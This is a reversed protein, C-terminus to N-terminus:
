RLQALFDDKPIDRLPGQVVDGKVVVHMTPYLGAGDVNKAPEGVEGSGLFVILETDREFVDNWEYVHATDGVRGGVFSFTLSEGVDDGKFVESVAMRVPTRIHADINKVAEKSDAEPAVNDSSSWKSPMVEAITGQVVIDSRHLENSYDNPQGLYAHTVFLQTAGVAYSPLSARNDEGNSAFALYM